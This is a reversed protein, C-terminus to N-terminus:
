NSKGVGSVLYHVGDPGYSSEIQVENNRLHGNFFVLQDSNLIRLYEGEKTQRIVNRLSRFEDFIVKSNKALDERKKEFGSAGGCYDIIAKTAEAQETKFLKKLLDSKEIDLGLERAIRRFILDEYAGGGLAKERCEEYFNEWTPANLLAELDPKAPRGIKPEGLDRRIPAPRDRPPDLPKSPGDDSPEKVVAAPARKPVESEVPKELPEAPGPAPRLLFVLGLLIAAPFAVGIVVKLKM